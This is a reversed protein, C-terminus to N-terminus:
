RKPKKGFLDMVKVKKDDDTLGLSVAPWLDKYNKWHVLVLKERDYISLDKVKKKPM